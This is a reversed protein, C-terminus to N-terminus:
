PTKSANDFNELLSELMFLKIYEDLLEQLKDSISNRIFMAADEKWDEPILTEPHAIAHLMIVERYFSITERSEEIAEKVQHINQFGRKLYFEHTWDNEAM